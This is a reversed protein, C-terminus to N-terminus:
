PARRGSCPRRRRRSRSRLMISEAAAGYNTKERWWRGVGRGARKTPGIHWPKCRSMNTNNLTPPSSSSHYFVSTCTHNDLLNFWLQIYRWQLLRGTWWWWRGKEWATCGTTRIGLGSSPVVTDRCQGISRCQQQRCLPDDHWDAM